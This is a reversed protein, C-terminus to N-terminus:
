LKTYNENTINSEGDPYNSFSAMYERDTNSLEVESYTESNTVTLVLDCNNNTRTVSSVEMNDVQNSLSIANQLSLEVTSPPDNGGESSQQTTITETESSSIQVPSINILDSKDVHIEVENTRTLNGYEDQVTEREKSISELVTTLHKHLFNFSPRERSNENWCHLMVTYIDDPCDSPKILRKGAKLHQLIDDNQVGRFPTLGYAFIEWLVVGFSWIDTNSSFKGATLTEISLWKAPLKSNMKLEIYGGPVSLAHSARFGGIKIDHAENLLIYKAQLAKHVFFKSALYEMGSAIQASIHLQDKLGFDCPQSELRTRRRVRTLFHKLDGVNMFTLVTILPPTTICVGLLSLVNPHSFQSMIYAAGLFTEKSRSGAEENLIKVAVENESGFSSTLARMVKTSEGMGVQERIDLVSSEIELHKLSDIELPNAMYVNEMMEFLPQDDTEIRSDRERVSEDPLVPQVVKNVELRTRSCVSSLTSPTERSRESSSSTSPPLEKPSLPSEVISDLGNVQPRYITKAEIVDEATSYRQVLESIPPLLLSPTSYNANARMWRKATLQSDTDDYVESGVAKYEMEGEVDIDAGGSHYWRRWRLILLVVLASIILLLLIVCVIVIGAIAGSSLTTDGSVEDEIVVITTGNQPSSEGAGNVAFVTISFDLSPRTVILMTENGNVTHQTQSGNSFLFTVVYSTIIGNPFEPPLWSVNLKNNGIFVWTVNRPPGPAAEGTLMEIATSRPGLNGEQDVSAVTVSYSTFAKLDSIVHSTVQGGIISIIRENSQRKGKSLGNRDESIYIVYGSAESVPSWTILLATANLSMVM